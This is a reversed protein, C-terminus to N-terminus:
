FAITRRNLACRPINLKWRGCGSSQCLWRLTVGLLGFTGVSVVDCHELPLSATFGISAAICAVRTIRPWVILPLPVTLRLLPCVERKM